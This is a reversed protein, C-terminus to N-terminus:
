CDRPRRLPAVRTSLRCSTTGTERFDLCTLNIAAQLGELSEISPVCGRTARSADLVTMSEMDAVTIDGSPKNLTDRVFAPLIPDPIHVVGGTPIHRLHV